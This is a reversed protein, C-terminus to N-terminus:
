FHSVLVMYYNKLGFCSYFFLLILFRVASLTVEDFSSTKIDFQIIERYVVSM